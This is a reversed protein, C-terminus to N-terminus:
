KIKVKGSLAKKLLVQIERSKDSNEIKVDGSVSRLKVTEPYFDKGKCDGSVTKFDLSKAETQEVKLDGSVTNLDIPGDIKTDTLSADGSVMSMKLSGLIGNEVKLDGSVTSFNAANTTFKHIKVDGSTTKIDFTETEISELKADGSVIKISFLKSKINQPVKVLFKGADRSLRFRTKDSLRKLSFLESDFTVEYDDTDDINKYHVEISEADSIVYKVDESVLAISIDFEKDVVPFTKWLTYGEVITGGKEVTVTDALNDKLDQALKAPDGFKTTLEDDSLGEKQATEIMEEHDALIEKIEDKSFNLRKLEKKLDDLFTKM